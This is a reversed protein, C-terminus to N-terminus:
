NSIPLLIEFMAGSNESELLRIEGGGDKIMERCINLGLGTGENIPKTSFLPDFIKERIDSPIGPGNDQIILNIFNNETGAVITKIQPSPTKAESMAYSANAYLNILVQSLKSTSLTVIENHSDVNEVVFNINRLLTSCLRKAINIADVIVGTSNEVDNSSNRTLVRFSRVLEILQNTIFLIDNIKSSLYPDDKQKCSYKELMRINGYLAQVPNAVEHLLSSGLLGLTSLQSQQIKENVSHVNSTVDKLVCLTLDEGVPSISIDLLIEEGGKLMGIPQIGTGMPRNGPNEWFLQHLRPHDKHFREPILLEVAQGVVESAEYKFLSYFISNCYCIKGSRNVVIIPEPTLEFLGFIHNYSSIFHEVSKVSDTM